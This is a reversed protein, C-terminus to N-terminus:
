ISGQTPLEDASHEVRVGYLWTSPTDVYDQKRLGPNGPNPDAPDYRSGIEKPDFWPLWYM